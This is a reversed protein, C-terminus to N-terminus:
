SIKLCFPPKPAICAVVDIEFKSIQFVGSINFHDDVGLCKGQITQIEVMNIDFKTIM